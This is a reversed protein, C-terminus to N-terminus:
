LYHKGRFGNPACVLLVCVCVCVSIVVSGPKIYKLEISCVEQGFMVCYKPGVLLIAVCVKASCVTYLHPFV